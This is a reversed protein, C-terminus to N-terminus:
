ERTVTITKTKDGSKLVLKNEGMSLPIQAEFDGSKDRSIGKGNVTFPQAPDAHGRLTYVYAATTVNAGGEVTIQSYDSVADSYIIEQSFADRTERLLGHSDAKLAAYGYLVSGKYTLLDRSLRIQETLEGEPSEWTDYNYVGHAVLLDVGTGDLVSNWWNALTEYGAASSSIQWYLQPAIYDVYGGKVWALADCYLSKYAEFGRTDSGGNTGNDNQWIGFPSIGFLCSSRLSKVANYCDRVLTNINERRWDDKQQGAGYKAYSIGDEFEATKGNETVPYPYFYDDFVVGDVAYNKVIEAVGQAVYERVRPNGADFYLKGDSYPILWTPNKRAPHNECLATVDTKPNSASGYTVRLPNVWAHVNIKQKKAQNILYELCDFNGEPATGQKGSVFESAPFLESRYLADACPRVQFFITNLDNEACTKVIDDLEARLKHADLGKKSPFNINGVTAIWVGRVEADPNLLGIAHPTESDPALPTVGDRKAPTGSCSALFLMFFCLILTLFRKM